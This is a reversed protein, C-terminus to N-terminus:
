KEVVTYFGGGVGDTRRFGDLYTGNELKVRHKVCNDMFEDVDGVWNIKDSMPYQAHFANFWDDNYHNM